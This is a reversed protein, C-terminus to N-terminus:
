LSLEKRIREVPFGMINEFDGEIHDVIEDGILQIGYAGAKDYPEPTDCYSQIKREQEDDLTNFYVLSTEVFSKEKGDM